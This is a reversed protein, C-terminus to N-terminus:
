PRASNEATLSVLSAAQLWAISEVLLGVVFQNLCHGGKGIRPQPFLDRALALVVVVEKVHEAADHLVLEIMGALDSQQFLGRLSVAILPTM